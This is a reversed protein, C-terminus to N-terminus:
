CGVSEFAATDGKKIEQYGNCGQARNQVPTMGQLELWVVMGTLVRDQMPAVNGKSGGM